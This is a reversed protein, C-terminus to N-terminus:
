KHSQKQELRWLRCCEASCWSNSHNHMTGCRLCPKMMKETKIKRIPSGFSVDELMAGVAMAAAVTGYLHRKLM